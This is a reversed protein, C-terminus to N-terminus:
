GSVLEKSVRDRDKRSVAARATLYRGQYAWPFGGPPFSLHVEGWGPATGGCDRRLMFKKAGPQNAVRAFVITGGVNDYM